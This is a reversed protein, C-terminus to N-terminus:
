AVDAVKSPNQIRPMGPHPGGPNWTQPPNEAFNWATPNSNIQAPTEGPVGNAAPPVTYSSQTCFGGCGTIQVQNSTPNVWVFGVNPTLPSTTMGNTVNVMIPM